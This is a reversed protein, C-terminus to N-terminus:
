FRSRLRSAESVLDAAKHVLCEQSSHVDTTEMTGLASSLKRVFDSLSERAAFKFKEEAHCEVELDRIKRGLERNKEEHYKNERQLTQLAAESRGQALSLNREKEELEQEIM